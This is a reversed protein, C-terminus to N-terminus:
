PEYNKRPHVLRPRTTDATGFLALTFPLGRPLVDITRIKVNRTRGNKEKGKGKKRDKSTV